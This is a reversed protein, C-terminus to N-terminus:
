VRPLTLGECVPLADGVVKLSVAHECV